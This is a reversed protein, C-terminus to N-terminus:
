YSKPVRLKIVQDYRVEYSEGEGKLEFTEEGLKGVTGVIGRIESSTQYTAAIQVKQDFGWQLLSRINKESMQFSLIKALDEEGLDALRVSQVGM